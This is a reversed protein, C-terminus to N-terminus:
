VARWGPLEKDKSAFVRVKNDVLCFIPAVLASEDRAYAYENVLRDMPNRHPMPLNKCPPVAVYSYERNLAESSLIITNITLGRRYSPRRSRVPYVM